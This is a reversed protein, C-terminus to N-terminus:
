DRVSDSPQFQPESAERKQVAEGEEAVQEDKEAVATQMVAYSPIHYGARSESSSSGIEGATVKKLQGTLSVRASEANKIAGSRVSYEIAQEVSGFQKPRSQLFSQMSALADLASGEVVDIVVLAAFNKIAEKQAAVHVALAGGMSHGVLVIPPSSIDPWLADVM